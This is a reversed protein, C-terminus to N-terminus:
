QRIILIKELSKQFMSLIISFIQYLIQDIQYDFNIIGRQLHCKFKNNNHSKKINKWTYYISLNSLAISEEGRRLDLKDTLKLILVHPESTKSYEFNMFITGM